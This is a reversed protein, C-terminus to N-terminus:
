LESSTRIKMWNGVWRNVISFFLGTSLGVMLAATLAELPAFIRWAHPLALDGAGLTTYTGASFYLSSRFDSILGQWFYFLGWLTIEALHTLILWCTLGMVLSTVPWFETARLASARILARILAAFGIAHIFVTLIVLFCAYLSDALM